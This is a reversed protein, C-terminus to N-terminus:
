RKAYYKAVCQIVHITQAYNLRPDVLSRYNKKFDTVSSSFSSKYDVCERVNQHTAELHIANLQSGMRRHILFSSKIEDVISNLKRIKRGSSLTQTNGHMPDCSWLVTHQTKKVAEILQPLIHHVQQVGLRPILTIRGPAYDPDLQNITKILTPISTDPGIKLAIPNAIKKLYDIHEISTITRKGLWPFHTSRNYYLGTRKDLRTLAQEYCLLLAEHSTHIKQETKLERNWENIESYISGSCNYGLLMRWPDPTRHQNHVQNVMDGFYSYIRENQSTEYPNSRPKAYQGAIRGVQLVRSGTKNQFFDALQQIFKLKAYTTKADCEYFSEACDGLQILFYKGLAAQAILQRFKNIAKISVLPVQSQLINQVHALDNTSYDFPLYPKEQSKLQLAPEFM